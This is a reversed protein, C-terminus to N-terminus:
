IRTRNNERTEKQASVRWIFLWMFFRLVDRTFDLILVILFTIPSLLIGIIWWIGVERHSLEYSPDLQVSHREQHVFLDFPIATNNDEKRMAPELVVDIPDRFSLINSRLNAWSSEAEVFEKIAM